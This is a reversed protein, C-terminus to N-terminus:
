DSQILQQLTEAAHLDLSSLVVTPKHSGPSFLKLTALGLWREFLSREMTVHNINAKSLRTTTQVLNGKSFSLEERALVLFYTGALNYYYIYSLFTVTIIFVIVSVPQTMILSLVNGAYSNAPAFFHLLSFTAVLVLLVRSSSTISLYAKNICQFLLNRSPIETLQPAVTTISM